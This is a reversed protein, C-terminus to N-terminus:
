LLLLKKTALTSTDVGTSHELEEKTGYNSFELLSDPEPHYSM